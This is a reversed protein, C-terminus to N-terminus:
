VLPATTPDRLTPPVVVTSDQWMLRDRCGTYRLGDTRCDGFDRDQLSIPEALKRWGRLGHSVIFTHHASRFIDSNPCILTFRIRIAIFLQPCIPHGFAVGYADRPTVRYVTYQVRKTGDRMRPTHSLVGCGDREVCMCFAGAVNKRCM